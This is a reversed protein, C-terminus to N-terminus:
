DQEQELILLAGELRNLNKDSLKKIRFLLNEFKEDTKSTNENNININDTLDLLYDTSCNFYKAMKILTAASPLISGAEYKSISEQTIGLDLALKLQNLNRKERLKKLNKM